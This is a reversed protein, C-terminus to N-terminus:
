HNNIKYMRYGLIISIVFQGVVMISRFVTKKKGASIENKLASIIDKNDDVEMINAKM